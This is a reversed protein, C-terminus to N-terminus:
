KAPTEAKAEEKPKRRFSMTQFDFVWEAKSLKYSEHLADVRAPLEARIQQLYTQILQLQAAFKEADALLKEIRLQDIEQLPVPKDAEPAVGGPEQLDEGLFFMESGSIPTYALTFTVNVGNVSGAPTERILRRGVLAGISAASVQPYIRM